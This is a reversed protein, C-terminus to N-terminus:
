KKKRLGKLLYQFELDWLDKRAWDCDCMLLITNEPAQVVGLVVYRERTESNRIRLKALHGQETGIPAPGNIDKGAKDKIFEEKTEPYSEEKQREIVYKRAADAAEKLGAAKELLIFRFNAVKSSHIQENPDNGVLVVRANPDWNEPKGQFAWLGKVYRMEYPVGEVFVNDSDRETEKWGERNKGLSFSSRLKDWDASAADKLDTPCWTFFWYGFGRAAVAVAEGSVPVGDESAEFEIRVEIPLGGLKGAAPKREWEVSKFCNRLKVLAQDQMEGESPLRQTYDRYFLALNNTPERRTMAFNVALNAAATSNAHWGGGPPVFKFNGKQTDQVLPGTAEDDTAMYKWAWVAGGIAGAVAGGILVGAVISNWLKGSGRKPRAARRRAPIPAVLGPAAEFELSGPAPGPAAHEEHVPM